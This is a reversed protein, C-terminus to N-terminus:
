GLAIDEYVDHHRPSWGLDRRARDGSIGQSLAYGRAWEGLEAAFADASVIVPEDDVCFRRSVARAIDMAKVADLTVGHYVGGREAKEAALAYLEALDDAHVLPWTVDANGVVRVPGGARAADSFHRFVGGVGDYVMGPHIAIGRVKECTMMQDIHDVAWQFDSLANIPATEDIVRGGTDGFLWCGGTFVLAPADGRRSLRELMTTMLHADLDAMDDGFTNAVHIVADTDDLAPAWTEPSAIDGRVARAGMTEVKAASADSRALASVEHGRACLCPVIASGISGTGGLVLVKM